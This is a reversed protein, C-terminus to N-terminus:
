NRARTYQLSLLQELSHVSLLVMKRAASQETIVYFVFSREREGGRGACQLIHGPFYVFHILDPIVASM